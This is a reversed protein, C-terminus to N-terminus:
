IIAPSHRLTVEVGSQLSDHAEMRRCSYALRYGDDHFVPSAVVRGLSSKKVPPHCHLHRRVKQEDDFMWYGIESGKAMARIVPSPPNVRVATTLGRWQEHEQCGRRRTKLSRSSM